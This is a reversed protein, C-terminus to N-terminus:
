IEGRAKALADKLFSGKGAPAEDDGSVSENLGVGSIPAQLSGKVAEMFELADERNRGKDIQMKATSMPVKLNEADSLIVSVREREALVAAAGATETEQLTVKLAAIQEQLSTITKEAEALKAKLMEEENMRVGKSQSKKASKFQASLVEELSPAISDILKLNLAEEAIFSAGEMSIIDSVSLQARGKVVDNNFSADLSALLSTFKNRAEESLPTLPDGLSKKAKSRFVTYSVGQEALQASKEMHVMLAAISGLLATQEGYIKQTAAAIAYAASTANDAYAFTNIGRSALGRIKHTLGFLGSSEGGPSDIYFGLDTVGSAVAQDVMASLYQYSTQGSAASVEKSVLTDFVPIIKLNRGQAQFSDTFEKKTANTGAPTKDILQPQGAWLHVAVAETLIVLKTEDLLVPSNVLRSLLRHYSM